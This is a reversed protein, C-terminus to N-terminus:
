EVEDVYCTEIGLISAIEVNSFGKSRMNQIHKRNTEEIAEERGKALGEKMGQEIGKEMGKEIGEAMGKEMGEAIGKEMGEKLGIVIGAARGISEADAYYLREKDVRGWIRDYLEIEEDTYAAEAVEDLAKKTEPNDLLEKPATRTTEDIETLYKLWLVAMKKELITHPTFKPLEVFTLHLGEIIKETHQMHVINYNHIFENPLDPMFVDNLLNLSYVPQLLKYERSRRLQKVYAKSTNFLVRQQFAQSWIMQMEVIFQRGRLDMCRVDVISDKGMPTDPVLEATLYEVSDVEKDGDLPLLANILSKVLDKHEGFVKKFTLDNKPDLYRM